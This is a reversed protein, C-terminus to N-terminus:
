SGFSEWNVSRFQLAEALHEASIIPSQALNAITRAIRIIKQHARASLKLHVVSSDLLELAEKNLKYGQSEGASFKQAQIIRARTKQSQSETQSQTQNTYKKTLSKIESSDLRSMEIHIDIRDLLPGSLKGLYNKIQQPSCQCQKSMDGLHGCPCPNCAAILIFDAPYTINQHIRNLTIEKNELVQRLQEITFKGFETLEDLFLVGNNALSVEGPRIPLGGGILSTASASHHPARLPPDFNIESKILGAVSYIKTTELAKEFSLEPILSIFRKALMSKGCGPPGIMLLHHNGAAAIELGRKAHEQGIVDSLDYPLSRKFQIQKKDVSKIACSSLKQETFEPSKMDRRYLEEVLEKAEKLNNAQFVEIQKTKLLTVLSAEASNAPSVILYKIKYKDAEIALALAGTVSKIEGILSLEGLLCFKELFKPDIDVYGFNVMLALAIALDLHAGEKRVRAPSLNVLIRTPQLEFNSARMAVSIREKAETTSKDPLGVIGFGPVGASADVEVGIIHADIGRPSASFTKTFM